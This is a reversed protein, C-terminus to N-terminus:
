DNYIGKYYNTTIANQNLATQIQILNRKTKIVKNKVDQLQMLNINAIKYGNQFISLLEVEAKLVKENRLLLKELSIREKQLMNLGIDLRKSEDEILLQSRKAQLSAIRKEESRTNFFALPFSVGVRTIKQDPENEYEAFLNAWEVSNSNVEAESLAKKQQSKLLKINPNNVNNNITSIAFIHSADLAIEEKLGALRLLNYYSKHTSLALSENNIQVTEYDIKAQLMLGRSITGSEYRAKSIDFIAKAVELEEEGLKLLMTKESYSSYALSIDRIFIAKQQVYEAGATNITDRSLTARSKEVNWLRIPQSYNVRYGNDNNGTNPAFTSYELELSPNAYRTLINGNEKAQEVALISSELYPSNIIAKQLFTDFDMSKKTFGEASLYTCLLGYILINKFM